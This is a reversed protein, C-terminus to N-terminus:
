ARCGKLFIQIAQTSHQKIEADSPIALGLVVDQYYDGRLLGILLSATLEPNDIALREEEAQQQSGLARM